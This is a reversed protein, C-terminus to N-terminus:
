HQGYSMRSFDVFYFWKFAYSDLIVIMLAIILMALETLSIVNALTCQVRLLCFFESTKMHCSNTYKEFYEKRLVSIFNFLPYAWVFGKLLMYLSFAFLDLYLGTYAWFASM